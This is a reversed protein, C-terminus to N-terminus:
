LVNFCTSTPQFHSSNKKHSLHFKTLMTSTPQLPNLNINQSQGM